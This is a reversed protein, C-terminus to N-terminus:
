GKKQELLNFIVGVGQWDNPILDIMPQGAMKSIMDMIERVM